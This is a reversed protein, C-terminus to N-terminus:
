LVGGRRRRRMTAPQPGGGHKPCVPKTKAVFSFKLRSLPAHVKGQGDDKKEDKEESTKKEGHM